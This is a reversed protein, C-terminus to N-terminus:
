CPGRPLHEFFVHLVFLCVRIGLLYSWPAMLSLWVIGLPSSLRILFFFGM